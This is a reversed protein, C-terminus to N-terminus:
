QVEIDVVYKNCLSYSSLIFNGRAFFWECFHTLEIYYLLFFFSSDTKFTNVNYICLRNIFIVFTIFPSNFMFIILLDLTKIQKLNNSKKPDNKKLALIEKFGSLCTSFHEYNLRKCM